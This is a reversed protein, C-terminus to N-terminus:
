EGKKYNNDFEKTMNKYMRVISDFKNLDVMMESQRISKDKYEIFAEMNQKTENFVFVNMNDRDSMEVKAKNGTKYTM